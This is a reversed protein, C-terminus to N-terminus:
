RWSRWSAGLFFCSFSNGLYSYSVALFALLVLFLDKFCVKREKAAKATFFFFLEGGLVGLFALSFL